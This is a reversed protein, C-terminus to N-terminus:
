KVVIRGKMVLHIACYYNTSKTVVMKWSSGPQIESSTWGKGPDESVCHVVVDQNNWIVVDGKHVKIEAPNFAMNKIDITYVHGGKNQSALDTKPLVQDSTDMKRNTRLFSDQNIPPVSYDEPAGCSTLILILFLITATKM